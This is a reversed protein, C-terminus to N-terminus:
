GHNNIARLLKVRIERLTDTPQLVNITSADSLSQYYLLMKAWRVRRTDIATPVYGSSFAQAM